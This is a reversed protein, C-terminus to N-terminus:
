FNRSFKLIFFHNEIIIYDFSVIINKVNLEYYLDKKLKTM